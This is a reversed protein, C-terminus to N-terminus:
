RNLQTILRRQRTCSVRSWLFGRDVQHRDQISSESKGSSLDEEPRNWWTCSPTTPVVICPRACLRVGCRSLLEMVNLFICPRDCLSGGCCSLLEMVNMFLVCMLGLTMALAKVLCNLSM